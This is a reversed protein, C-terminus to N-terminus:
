LFVLSGLRPKIKQLRFSSASLNDIKNDTNKIVEDNKIHYKKLVKQLDNRTIKSMM